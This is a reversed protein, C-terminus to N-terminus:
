RKAKRLAEHLNGMHRRLEVLQARKRLNHPSSDIETLTRARPTKGRTPVREPPHEIECEIDESM